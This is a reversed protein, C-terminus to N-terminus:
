ISLSWIFGAQLVKAKGQLAGTVQGPREEWQDDGRGLQGTIDTSGWITNGGWTWVSGDERIAAVHAIGASIDVVHSFADGSAKDLVPKPYSSYTGQLTDSGAIRSSTASKTARVANRGRSTGAPTNM